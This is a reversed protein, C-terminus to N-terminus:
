ARFFARSNLFAFGELIRGFSKWCPKCFLSIFFIMGTMILVTLSTFERESFFICSSRSDFLCCRLSFFSFSFPRGSSGFLFFFITKRRAGKGEPASCM